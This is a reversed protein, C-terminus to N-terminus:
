LIILYSLEGPSIWHGLVGKMEVKQGKEVKQSKMVKKIKKV